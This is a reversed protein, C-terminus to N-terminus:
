DDCMTQFVRIKDIYSSIHHASSTLAYELIHNFLGNLNKSLHYIANSFRITEWSVMNGNFKQASIQFAKDRDWLASIDVWPLNM